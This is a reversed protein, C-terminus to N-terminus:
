PSIEALDSSFSVTNVTRNGLNLPLHDESQGPELGLAGPGVDSLCPPWVGSDKLSNALVYGRSSPPRM